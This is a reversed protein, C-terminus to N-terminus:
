TSGRIDAFLMSTEVEAGGHHKILVKECANCYNPNSAAQRKGILRMVAGGGGKFPAACLRCRPEAPLRSFFRRGFKMMSDPQSLYDSWFKENKDSAPM